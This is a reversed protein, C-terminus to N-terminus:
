RVAAGGSSGIRVVRARVAPTRAETYRAFGWGVAVVGSSVALVLAWGGPGPRWVATDGDRHLVASVLSVLPLHVAYVSFSCGALVGAARLLWAAARSRPHVDTLLAVVLLAAALGTVFSAAVTRTQTGGQLSCLHLSAGVGAVAALRLVGLAAPPVRAVLGRLRDDQWAVAAGLLWVVSLALVDRDVALLLWVGLGPLLIRRATSGPGLAGALLLPFALYYTGEFALSWLAGNSGFSPVLHGQVFGLNGLLDALSNNRASESGRQFRDSGALTRRAVEDVALTLLLAPVLVVWMRALRSVLYTWWDFRGRAVAHVVSGGVFYGSLVFFVLVAGYGVQTAPYLVANVPGLRGRPLPQLLYGRTHEVVVLLAAAARVVDLARNGTRRATPATPATRALSAPPAAPM